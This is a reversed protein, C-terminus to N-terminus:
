FDYHISAKADGIGALYCVGWVLADLRNPSRGEGPVWTCLEDELETFEGVHHVLGLRYLDAVPEARIEKGRTARVDEYHRDAILRDYNRINMRVLDGGQNVEAIIKDANERKFVEVARCEFGQRQMGIVIDGDFPDFHIDIVMNLKFLMM